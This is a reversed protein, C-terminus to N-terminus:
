LISPITITNSTRSVNNSDTATISIDVRKPTTINGIVFRQQSVDFRVTAGPLGNVTYVDGSTPICGDVLVFAEEPNMGNRDAQSLRPASPPVAVITFNSNSTNFFTANSSRVMIRATNTGINPVCVSQSGQNIAGQYLVNPYTAGGDTSLLIDVLAANVPSSNTNAVNWTVQRSSLGTWQISAGNPYTVTFPGAKNTVALQMDGRTNCSGGPTNSRVTVRFKMSRSVSPLVEWTFPGNNAIATLNPFYRTGSNVPSISRFNPGSVSTSVPPQTSPEPDMQEWTYTLTTNSATTASANLSFPTSVPITVSGTMSQIQPAAPIPTKVPCTHGPSSVFAGMEQLSIGNFYPDSNSQVNPACIGAYGMITSGSGPEVATALNRQCSNNQVHNAGFQHGMEHAVYDVDFPDGVPAPQGTVGMAKETASCVSGLEALGSGAADVVHGIDYNASGIVNDINTQNQTIMVDPNGSTYPQNNPDTYIILNNNAIIQMTIAMDVEYIGNVRNITTVQAALANPVTGGFYQTYQATAALALRYQKLECPYFPASQANLRSTKLSKGDSHVGCKLRGTTRFDKKFYSMYYQTDGKYMPDIFVTDGDPRLIMAHFGLPTVDLKMLEGTNKEPYGDYTRIKPFKAKLDPHMTGNAVLYFRKSSGDPYPVEILKSQSKDTATLEGLELSLRQLSLRYAKFHTANILKVSNTPLKSPAVAEFYRQVVQGANVFHALFFVIACTFIKM